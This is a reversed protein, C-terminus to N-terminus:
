LPTQLVAGAVGPRNIVHLYSHLWVYFNDHVVCTTRTFQLESCINNAMFESRIAHRNYELYIHQNLQSFWTYFSFADFDSYSLSM